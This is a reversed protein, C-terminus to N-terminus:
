AAPPPALSLVVAAGVILILLVFEAAISTRLHRSAPVNGEALAPTLVIKNYVALAIVLAALAVKVALRLGYDTTLLADWSGVHMVALVLGSAVIAGVAYVARMSFAAVVAWAEAPALVKLCRVLPALAGLWFAAGLIHLAYAPASVWRPAAVVPHGTVLFSLVCLIAGAPVIVRQRAVPRAFGLLLIVMAPVGFGASDKLTTSLGIEWARATFPGSELLSAGILGVALLYCLAAVVGACRGVVRILDQAPPPTRVWLGFLGSGTALLAAGYLLWQNIAAALAWGTPAVGAM